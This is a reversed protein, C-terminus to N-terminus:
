ALPLERVWVEGVDAGYDTLLPILGGIHDSDCHTCVVIDPAKKGHAKLVAQLVPKMKKVYYAPEGGDIVMVLSQGSKALEVIIADGDKVNLINVKVDM